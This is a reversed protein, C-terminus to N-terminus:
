FPKFKRAAKMQAIKQKDEEFKKRLEAIHERKSERMQFTYFNLLETKERKKREKARLRRQNKETRAVAPKASKRTVTIWGEEDPVGEQEKAKEEEEQVSTDHEQMFEDIEKQLDGVDPRATSYQSCWKKYGTPIPKDVTSLVFPEAFKSPLQKAKPISSSKQFVVFAFQFGQTHETSTFYKSHKDSPNSSTPKEQLFVSEIKGCHGFLRELCEQNCYPPVNVVFLTRSAPKTADEDRVRHERYYLFHGAKSKSSFRIPLVTFGAVSSPHTM